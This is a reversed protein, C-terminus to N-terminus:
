RVLVVLDHGPSIKDPAVVALLQRRLRNRKVAKVIKKASVIVALRGHNLGNPAFKIVLGEQSYITKGKLVQPVVSGPLRYQRPLM